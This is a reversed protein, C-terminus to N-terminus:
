RRRPIEEFDIWRRMKKCAQVQIQRAREVTRGVADACKALTKGDLGMEILVRERDDLATKAEELLLEQDATLRPKCAELLLEPDVDHYLTKVTRLHPLGTFSEPWCESSVIHEGLQAAAEEIQRLVTVTPRKRLRIIQYMTERHMGALRAFATVSVHHKQLIAWLVGHKLRVQAAIKM